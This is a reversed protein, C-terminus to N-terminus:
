DIGARSLGGGSKVVGFEPASLKKERVGLASERSPSRNQLPHSMRNKGGGCGRRFDATMHNAKKLGILNKAGRCM